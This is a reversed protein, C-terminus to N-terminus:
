AADSLAAPTAEAPGQWLRQALDEARFSAYRQAMMSGPAWGMIRNLEELRFLPAGGPGKLELWQCTAEHRLDHERLGEIDMYEFAIRFRFSLRQSVTKVGRVGEEEMFPFLWASPLMSRTALYTRLAEHVEPRMPVDRFKVAGRWQKSSQVRIVKADLDVQHRRLTFAEQLRVGSHVIVLYLTLLANGGKLQLGRPRDPREYGSLVQLIKEHEGPQLRRDRVNNVKPEKAAARVIKADVDSYTAYGRPLLRCPNALQVDPHHRLYEDIARSLAQVRHKISQPSLNKEVKLWRLYSSLWSYTAESLKLTGVERNVTSLTLLQSPAALGSDSWGGLVRAMRVELRAPPRTLEAPLPLEALKMLKWQQAYALAEAETDFQFYKRGNPLSSHRLGIEWKGSAKQRAKAMEGDEEILRIM